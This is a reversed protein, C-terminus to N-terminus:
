PAGIVGDQWRLVMDGRFYELQAFPRRGEEDKCEPDVCKIIGDLALQRLTDRKCWPCKPEQQGKERPLRKSTEIVGLIILAKKCWGDIDKKVFRVHEDTAGDALKTIAELAAKTNASSGGRQRPPIHLQSRLFAENTRAYRHLEMIANAAAANWPPQSHDVKGHFVESSQKGRVAIINELLLNLGVAEDIIERLDARLQAPYPITAPM